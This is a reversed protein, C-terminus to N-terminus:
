PHKKRAVPTKKSGKATLGHTGGGFAHRLRSAASRLPLSVGGISAFDTGVGIAFSWTPTAGSIGRSANISMSSVYPLSFSVGGSISLARGYTPDVTGIDGDVGASMSLRDTAQLSLGADGYESSTGNFSSQISFDTLSRGASAHVGLKESLALGGGLTVSTGVSGSGFGTATDGVPLTIGVALSLSPSLPVDFSHDAGIEVPLDTLGSSKTTQLATVGPEAARAFTPTVGLSLWPLARWRIVASTARESRGGEYNLGGYSVGATVARGAAEEEEDKTSDAEVSDPRATTDRPTPSKPKAPQQAAMVASGLLM